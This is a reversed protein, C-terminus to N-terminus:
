TPQRQHYLRALTHVLTPHPEMTAITSEGPFPMTFTVPLPPRLTCTAIDSGSFAEIISPDQKLFGIMEPPISLPVDSPLAPAGSTYTLIMFRQIDETNTPNVNLFTVDNGCTPNSVTTPFPQIQMDDTTTPSPLDFDLGGYLDFYAVYTPGAILTVTTDYAPVWTFYPTTHTITENATGIVTQTQNLTRSTTIITDIATNNDMYTITEYLVTETVVVSTWVTDQEKEVFFTSTPNLAELVCGTCLSVPSTSGNTATSPSWTSTGSTTSNLLTTYVSSSGSSVSTSTSASSSTSSTSSTSSSSPSSSPSSSSSSSSSSSTSTSSTQSVLTSGSLLSSLTLSQISSSSSSFTSGSLLSSSNFRRIHVHPSANAFAALLASGLFAHSRM